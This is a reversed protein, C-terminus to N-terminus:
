ARVFQRANQDSVLPEADSELRVEVAAIKFDGAEIMALTASNILAVLTDTSNEQLHEQLAAFKRYQEDSLRVDIRHKKM